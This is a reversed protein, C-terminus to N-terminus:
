NTSLQDIYESTTLGTQKKFFRMMHGPESYNLDYAIESVTQNSHLLRDKIEALLRQKLLQIATVNYHQTVVKNLTIRSINLLAAYDNINKLRTIHKEILSKFQVAYNKEDTELTLQHEAAYKRNLTQLLYYLISRIIHVSDFKTQTLELKIETLLDNFKQIDNDIVDLFLQYNLQYFFLMKHTFFKDAFFENLFDEKFILTKFQNGESDLEWKRKQYASIFVVSNNHIEITKDNLQLKGKGKTFFVIEFYDTNHMDTQQYNIEDQNLINIFFDVGCETKHFHITHM